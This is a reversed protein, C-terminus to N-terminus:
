NEDCGKAALAAAEAGAGIELNGTTWIPPDELNLGLRFGTVTKCAECAIRHVRLIVLAIQM